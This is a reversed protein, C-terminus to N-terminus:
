PLLGAEKLLRAYRSLTARSLRANAAAEGEERVEELYFVLRNAMAMSHGLGLLISRQRSRESPESRVEGAAAADIALIEDLSSVRTWTNGLLYVLFFREKPRKRRRAEIYRVAEDFERFKRIKDTAQRSCYRGRSNDGVAWGTSWFFDDTSNIEICRFDKQMYGEVFILLDGAFEKGDM